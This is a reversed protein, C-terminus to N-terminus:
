SIGLDDVFRAAPVVQELKVGLQEVILDRLIVWVERRNWADEHEVILGYNSQLCAEVTGRVTMVKPEFRTAFPTTVKYAAVILILGWLFAVATAIGDLCWSAAAMAILWALTLGWGAARMWAPRALEPLRWGLGGALDRWAARRGREPVIQDMSSSPRISGREGGFGAILGRRLRYFTAASLCRRSEVAPLRSMVCEYLDGVTIIESAEEDTIKIGFCEEAEIVLELADLGM